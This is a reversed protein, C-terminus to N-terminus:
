RVGSYSTMHSCDSFYPLVFKRICDGYKSNSNLIINNCFSENRSEYLTFVCMCQRLSKM